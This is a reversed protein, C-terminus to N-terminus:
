HNPPSFFKTVRPPSTRIKITCLTYQALKDQLRGERDRNDYYVNVDFPINVVGPQELTAENEIRQMLHHRDLLQFVHERDQIVRGLVCFSGTTKVSGFHHM